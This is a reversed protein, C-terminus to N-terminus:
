HEKKKKKLEARMFRLRGRLNDTDWVTLEYEVNGMDCAHNQLTLQETHGLLILDSLPICEVVAGTQDLIGVRVTSAGDIETHIIQDELNPLVQDNM